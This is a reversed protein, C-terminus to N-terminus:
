IGTKVATWAGWSAEATMIGYAITQARVRYETQTGGDVERFEVDNNSSSSLGGSIKSHALSGTANTLDLYYAGNQGLLLDSDPAVDDTYSLSKGNATIRNGTGTSIDISSGYLHLRTAIPHSTPVAITATIDNIGYSVSTLSIGKVSLSSASIHGSSYIGWTDSGDIILLQGSFTGSAGSIDGTFNGDVGSLTGKIIVDSDFVTASTIHVNAGAVEFSGLITVNADLTVNEGVVAFTGHVTTAADLVIQDSALAIISGSAGSEMNLTSLTGGGDVVVVVRAGLTDVRSTINTGTTIGNNTLLTSLDFVATGNDSVSQTIDTLATLQNNTFITNISTLATANAGIDDTNYDVQQTINTSVTIGNNTLMTGVDFIAQANDYIDDSNDSVALTIDTLATLGNATTIAAQAAISATNANALATIDTEATLQNASFITGINVIADYNGEIDDEADVVRQTINTGSSLGNATTIETISDISAEILDSRLTIDTLATLGNAALVATSLSAEAETDGVRVNLTSLNITETDVGAVILEISDAQQEISSGHAELVQGHEPVIEKLRKAFQITKGNFTYAEGLADTLEQVPGTSMDELQAKLADFEVRTVRQSVQSDSALTESQEFVGSKHIADGTEAEIEVPVPNTLARSLVVGDGNTVESFVPKEGNIHIRRAGKPANYVVWMRIISGDAKRLEIGMGEQLREALGSVALSSVTGSVDESLLTLSGERILRWAVERTMTQVHVLDTKTPYVGSGQPIFYDGLDLAEVQFSAEDALHKKTLTFVRHGGYRGALVIKRNLGLVEQTVELAETVEVPILTVIGPGVDATTVTIAERVSVDGTDEERAKTLYAVGSGNPGALFASGDDALADFDAVFEDKNLSVLQTNKEFTDYDTECFVPLYKVGGIIIGYICSISVLPHFRANIVSVRKRSAVLGRHAMLQAKTEGSDEEEDYPGVKWNSILAGAADRTATEHASTPGTGHVIYLPEPILGQTRDAYDTVITKLLSINGDEPVPFVSIDDFHTKLTKYAYGVPANEITAEPQVIVEYRDSISPIRVEVRQWEEAAVKIKVWQISTRWIGVSYGEGFELYKVEETETNISKVLINVVFLAQGSALERAAETLEVFINPALVADRDAEIFVGGSSVARDTSELLNQEHSVGSTSHIAPIQLTRSRIITGDRSTSIVHSEIVANGSLTWQDAGTDSKRPYREFGSNQIVSEIAGHEHVVRFAEVGDQVPSKANGLMHNSTPLTALSSYTDTSTEGGDTFYDFPFITREFSGEEVLERQYVHWMGARQHVFAQYGKLLDKLVFECSPPDEGKTLYAGPPVFEQLVPTLEASMDPTYWNAAMAIPLDLELKNLIFAVWEAWSKNGEELLTEVTGDGHVFPTKQLKGLGCMSLLGGGEPFLDLSLERDGKIIPGVFDLAADITVRVRWETEDAFVEDIVSNHGAFIAVHGASPRFERFKDSGPESDVRRFSPNGLRIVATSGVFDDKELDIVVNKGHSVHTHRYKAKFAM